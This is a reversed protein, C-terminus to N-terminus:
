AEEIIRYGMTETLFAKADDMTAFDGIRREPNNGVMRLPKGPKIHYQADVVEFVDEGWGCDCRFIRM